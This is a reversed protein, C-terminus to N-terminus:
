CIYAKFCFLFFFANLSFLFFSPVDVANLLKSWTEFFTYTPTAPLEGYLKLQNQFIKNFEELNEEVEKVQACAIAYFPEFEDKIREDEQLHKNNSLNAIIVLEGKVEKM